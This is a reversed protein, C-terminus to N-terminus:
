AAPTYFTFSKRISTAYKSDSPRDVKAFTYTLPRRKRGCGVRLSALRVNKKKRIALRVNINGGM